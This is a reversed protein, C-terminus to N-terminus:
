RVSSTANPGSQEILAKVTTRPLTRAPVPTRMPACVEIRAKLWVMSSGSSNMKRWGNVARPM